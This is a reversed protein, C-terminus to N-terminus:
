ASGLESDVQGQANAVIAAAQARADALLARAARLALPLDLEATVNTELEGLPGVLQLAQRAQEARAAREEAEAVLAHAARKAEEVSRELVEDASDLHEALEDRQREAHETRELARRADANAQELADADRKRRRQMREISVVVSALVQDVEDRDYGWIRSGFGPQRLDDLSLGM